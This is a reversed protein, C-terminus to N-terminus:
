IKRKMIVAVTGYAQVLQPFYSLDSFGHEVDMDEGLKSTWLGTSLQRAAHTPCGQSNVYISIKQFGDELLDTQCKSYGLTTFAKIFSDITGKREVGLPWFAVGHNDPWWWRSHDEAAWAICNYKRDPNSTQKFHM